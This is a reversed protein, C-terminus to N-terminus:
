FFIYLASGMRILILILLVGIGLRALPSSYYNFLWSTLILVLVSDFLDVYQGYSATDWYSIPSIFRWNSLPWFHSYADATHVCFDILIHFIVSITLWQLFLWNKYHAIALTLPWFILSHSLTFAISWGSNFYLHDWLQTHGYGLVVGCVLFFIFIPIDPLFAGLIFATTRYEGSNTTTKETYKALAWSYIIHSPTIM